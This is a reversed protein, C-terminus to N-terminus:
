HTPINVSVIKTNGKVEFNQIKKQHKVKEKVGKPKIPSSQIKVLKIEKNKTLENVIEYIIRKRSVQFGRQVQHHESRIKDLHKGVKKYISTPNFYYTRPKKNIKIQKIKLYEYIQKEILEKIDIGYRDAYYFLILRENGKFELDRM